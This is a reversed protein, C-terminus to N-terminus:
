VGLQNVPKTCGFCIYKEDDYKCEGFCCESYGYLNAIDVLERLKLTYKSLEDMIKNYEAQNDSVSRAKQWLENCYDNGKVIRIILKDVKSDILGTTM